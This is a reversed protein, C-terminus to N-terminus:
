DIDGISAGWGNFLIVDAIQRMLEGTSGISTKPVYVVDDPRVYFFSQSQDLNLLKKINLSRAIQKKEHRRFVIVRELDAKPSYGGARSLAEIVNVPRMIDYTGPEQVEGLLYVVSGSQEHLFLDAQMGPLYDSYEKQLIENIQDLTKNAVSFNGILPFTAQGDPRVNVLKSLGRPSTHLDNRLQKIRADFDPVTVYLEADRLISSYKEKLEEQLESPTKGTVHVEGLYPLVINGNPLVEQTENLEPIDVFKVSITHYLTIHFNDFERRQIQFLIDLVDGPAIRYKNFLDLDSPYTGQDFSFTTQDFHIECDESLKNNHSCGFICLFFFLMIIFIIINLRMMIIEIFKKFHELMCNPYQHKRHVPIM